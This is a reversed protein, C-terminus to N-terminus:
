PGNSAPRRVAGSASVTTTRLKEPIEARQVLRSPVGAAIPTPMDISATPTVEIARNAESPYAPTSAPSSKMPTPQAMALGAMASAM